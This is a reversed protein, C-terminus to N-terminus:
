QMAWDHSEGHASRGVAGRSARRRRRRRRRTKKEGICCVKEAVELQLNGRGTRVAGFGGGGIRGQPHNYKALRAHITHRIPNYPALVRSGPTRNTRRSAAAPPRLARPKKRTSPPLFPPHAIADLHYSNAEAEGGITYQTLAPPAGEKVWTKISQNIADYVIKSM